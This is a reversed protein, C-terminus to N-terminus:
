RLLFRDKWGDLVCFIPMIFFEARLFPNSFLMLMSICAICASVLMKATNDNAVMRWFMYMFVLYCSLFFMGWYGGYLAIQAYGTGVNLWPVVLVIEPIQVGLPKAIFDPIAFLSLAEIGSLRSVEYGIDANLNQVLNYIPSAMYLWVWYFDSGIAAGVSNAGGIELIYGDFYDGSRTQRLDGLASFLFVFLIILAVVHMVKLRRKIAMNYLLVFLSFVIAQRSLIASSIILTVAFAFFGVKLNKYLIARVNSYMMLAYFLVHFFPFGTFEERSGSLAPVGYILMELLFFMAVTLILNVQGVGNQKKLPEEVRLRSLFYGGVMLPSVGFAIQAVDSLSPTQYFSSFDFMALGCCLAFVLLFGNPFKLYKIM